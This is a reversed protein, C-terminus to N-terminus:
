RNEQSQEEDEIPIFVNARFIRKEIVFDAYGGYKEATRCVSATGIGRGSHSGSYFSDGIKRIEGSYTNEIEILLKGKRMKCVCSVYRDQDETDEKVANVANELLNGFIRCMDLDSIRIDEPVELFYEFRVKEQELLGGYYHFIADVSMNKSYCVPTQMNEQSERAFRHFYEKLEQYHEKELLMSATRIYQRLDHRTRSTEELAETLKEYHEKQMLLRLEMQRSQEEYILRMRYGETLEKWLILGFVGALFTGGWEPFWGGLIPDYLPWLRDAMLSSAYVVTGVLLLYGQQNEFQLFATLLLCLATVWKLIETVASIGYFIGTYNEGGAFIGALTIAVGVAGTLFAALCLWRCKGGTLENELLLMAPFMLFYFLMELSYWPQVRVAVYTHLLSYCTYGMVCICVGAFLVNARSRTDFFAWLSLLMVLLIFAFVVSDLFIPLGRMTNVKVPKGFAPVHQIGSSASSKDTVAIMIEGHGSGKFTFMRKQIEEKYHAPDPNGVQGMLTGNVYLNYASFIEPLYLGYIHEEEPLVLQLRYTGSGYPSSNKQDLEMGGYEGISLYRCYYEEPDDEPTLLVGPYYEWERSLYYVPLEDYNGEVYLIGHIAKEERTMYKNNSCYLIYFFVLSLIMSILAIGWFLKRSKKNEKNAKVGNGRESSKGM